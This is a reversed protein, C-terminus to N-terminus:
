GQKPNLLRRLEDPDMSARVCPECVTVARPKSVKATVTLTRKCGVCVYQM